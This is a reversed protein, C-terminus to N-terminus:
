AQEFKASFACCCAQEFVFLFGAAFATSNVFVLYFKM